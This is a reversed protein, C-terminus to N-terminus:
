RSLSGGTASRRWGGCGEPPGPFNDTRPKTKGTVAIRPYTPVSRLHEAPHPTSCFTAIQRDLVLTDPRTPPGPPHGLIDGFTGGSFSTAPGAPPGTRPRVSHRNHTDGSNPHGTLTGTRTPM